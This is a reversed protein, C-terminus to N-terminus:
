PFSSTAKMRLFKWEANAHGTVRFAMDFALVLGQIQFVQFALDIGPRIKHDRLQKEIVPMIEIENVPRPGFADLDGDNGSDHRHDVRILGPFESLHASGGQRFRQHGAQFRHLLVIQRDAFDTDLM